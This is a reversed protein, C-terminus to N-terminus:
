VWERGVMDCRMAMKKNKKEQFFWYEGCECLGWWGLWLFNDWGYVFKEIKGKNKLIKHKSKV